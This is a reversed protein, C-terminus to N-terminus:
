FHDVVDVKMGKAAGARLGEIVSGWGCTQLPFIAFLSLSRDSDLRDVLSVRRKASLGGLIMRYGCM